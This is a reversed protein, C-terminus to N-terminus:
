FMRVARCFYSTYKKVIQIEGTHFISYVNTNDEESSSLYYNSNFAFSNGGNAKIARSIPGKGGKSHNAVILLEYLEGFSPL